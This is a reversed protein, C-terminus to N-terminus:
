NVQSDALENKILSLLFFALSELNLVNILLYGKITPHVSSAGQKCLHVYLTCAYPVVYWLMFAKVDVYISLNLLPM